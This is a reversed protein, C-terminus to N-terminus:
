AHALLPALLADAPQRTVKDGEGHAGTPSTLVEQSSVFANAKDRVERLAFGLDRYLVVFTCWKHRFQDDLNEVDDDGASTLHPFGCFERSARPTPFISATAPHRLSPSTEDKRSQRLMATATKIIEEPRGVAAQEMDSLASTIEDLTVLTDARLKRLASVGGDEDCRYSRHLQQIVRNPSSSHMVGFLTTLIRNIELLADRLKGAAPLDLSKGHKCVLRAPMWCDLGERCFTLRREDKTKKLLAEIEALAKRVELRGAYFREADLDAQMMDWLMHSQLRLKQCVMKFRDPVMQSASVPFIVLAAMQSLLSGFAIGGARTVALMWLSITDDFHGEWSILIMTLASVQGAYEFGWMDGCFKFLFVGVCTLVTVWLPAVAPAARAVLAFTIGCAAGLVTGMVRMFGKTGTTGLDAQSTTVATMASWKLGTVVNKHMTDMALQAEVTFATLAVVGVAFSLQLNTRVVSGKDPMAGHWASINRM